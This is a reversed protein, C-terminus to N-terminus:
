WMIKGFFKANWLDAADIMKLEYLHYKGKDFSIIDLYHDPMGFEKRRNYKGIAYKLPVEQCIVNDLSQLRDAILARFDVEKM